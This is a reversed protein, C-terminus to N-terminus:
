KKGNHLFYKLKKLFIKLCGNKISRFIFFRDIRWDLEGVGLNKGADM